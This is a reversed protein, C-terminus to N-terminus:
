PRRGTLDLLRHQLSADAGLRGSPGSGFFGTQPIMAAMPSLNRWIEEVLEPDLEDNAKIARALDWAHLTLDTVRYGLLVAGSIDGSLHHCNRDLAGPEAFAEVQEVTTALYAGVPDSGLPDQALVAAAEDASAGALLLVAMQNGAVVHAVLMRVTWAECPTPLNWDTMTVAKVRTEFVVGARNLAELPNM